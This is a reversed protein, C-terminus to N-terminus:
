SDERLKDELEVKALDIQITGKDGKVVLVEGDNWKFDNLKGISGEILVQDRLGDGISLSSIHKM